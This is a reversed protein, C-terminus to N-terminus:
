PLELLLPFRNRTRFQTFVFLYLTKANGHFASVSTKHNEPKKTLYLLAPSSPWGEGAIPSPDHFALGGNKRIGP